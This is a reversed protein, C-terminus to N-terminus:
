KMHKFHDGWSNWIEELLWPVLFFSPPSLPIIIIYIDYVKHQFIRTKFLVIRNTQQFFNM